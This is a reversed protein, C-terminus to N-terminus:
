SCNSATHTHTHAVTYQMYLNLHAMLALAILIYTQLCVHGHPLARIGNNKTYTHTLTHTGMQTSTKMVCGVDTSCLFM